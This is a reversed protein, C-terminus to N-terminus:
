KFYSLSVPIFNQKGTKVYELLIETLEFLSMRGDPPTLGRFEPPKKTMILVAQKLCFARLEEDTM